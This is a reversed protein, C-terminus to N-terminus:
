SSIQGPPSGDVLVERIVKALSLPTPNEVGREFNGHGWGGDSLFWECLFNTEKDDEGITLELTFFRLAPVREFFFFRRRMPAFAIAVFHPETMNEPPPTPIVVIKGGGPLPYVSCRFSEPPAAHSEGVVEGVHNWLQLLFGRPDNGTLFALMKTPDIFTLDRLAHHAFTYHQQAM